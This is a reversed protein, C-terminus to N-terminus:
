FSYVLLSEGIRDVPKFTEWAPSVTRMRAVYHASIIYVGASPRRSVLRGFAESPPINQPLGYYPPNDYPSFTYLNVHDIRHDRVYRAAQKVGQGWDINSDDLFNLGRGPGGAIENIYPIYNPYARIGSAAQWLLLVAVIAIGTRTTLLRPVIRSSWVFILPFVPLLYRLGIQDAAVSILLTYFVISGLLIIEGWRSVFGELTIHMAAFIIFMLAPVTAKVAFAALFYYWWGGPKLRGFLYFPYNAIHNANVLAANKFYLVPSAAFLYACAIVVVSGCAIVFLKRPAARKERLSLVILLIPLFAGSFKSAMAAGLALGTAADMRWSQKGSGKWFLYLTLVTFVALPVDTTILMGHALLNPSFAYMTAAALGASAGFLDRAWCYTVILGIAALFVMGSRSWFLLRDADNTYLFRFGFDYEAANKWDDNRNDMVPRLVLLPMAAILKALPPHEPNMRFDRTRWYSYGAALHVGEDTTATLQPLALIAQLCFALLIVTLGARNLLGAANTRDKSITAM